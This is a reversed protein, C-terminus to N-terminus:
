EGEEIPPPASQHSATAKAPLYVNFTTGRGVESSFNLFGGHTKIIGMVTSLGLGTGKGIEKTTFFPDFIKERVEAPIGEGTDSVQLRVYQGPSLGSDKPLHAKELATTQADIVLSGGMPMADRANVCLNLLVQHLQTHNGVVTPLETAIRTEIKITRPFTKEALQSMERIIPKLHLLQHEGGVGRSFSLIQRVMEAGRRASAAMMDLLREGEESTLEPRLLGVAMLVPALANNLDHAIGGTLAGITEMRQTRLFQAEIQKKETVDTNIVLISKPEGAEDRLLTWRSEVVIKKGSKTVQQLEGKWEGKRILNRLAETPVTLDDQFLLVNANRNMAEQSKWGYLREAGKNWYLIQQSMDNLCIADQARDLLAAQERIRQEMRRRETMEAADRVARRVSSPLRSMRDKIVYDTAGEKLSEIALEEGITGSLFIFPVEPRSVRALKLASLGDFNPMSFDSVILDLEARELGKRFDVESKVCFVNCTIGEGELLSRALAADAPNDEVHLIHLPAKM